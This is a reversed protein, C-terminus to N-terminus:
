DDESRLIASCQKEKVWVIGDFAKLLACSKWTSLGLCNETSIKSSRELTNISNM